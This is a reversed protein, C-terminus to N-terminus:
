KPYIPIKFNKGFRAISTLALISEKKKACVDHGTFIIDGPYSFVEQSVRSHTRDCQYSHRRIIMPLVDQSINHSVTLIDPM